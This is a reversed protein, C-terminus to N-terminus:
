QHEKKYAIIMAYAQDKLFLKTKKMVEIEMPNIHDNGSEEAHAIKEDLQNHEDFLKRFHANEVKLVSVIERENQFM